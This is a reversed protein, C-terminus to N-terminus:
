FQVVNNNNITKTMVVMRNETEPNGLLDVAVQSAGGQNDLTNIHLIKLKKM